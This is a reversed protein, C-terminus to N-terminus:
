LGFKDWGTYCANWRRLYFRTVVHKSVIRCLERSLRKSPISLFFLHLFALLKLVSHTNPQKIIFTIYAQGVSKRNILITGSLSRFLFLALTDAVFRDANKGHEVICALIDATFQVRTHFTEISPTSLREVNQHQRIYCLANPVYAVSIDACGARIEQLTDEGFRYSSWPGIRDAAQRTWMISSTVWPRRFLPYPLIAEVPRHRKRAENGTFPTTTFSIPDCYSMEKIPNDLLTKLM